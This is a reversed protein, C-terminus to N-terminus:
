ILIILKIFFPSVALEESVDLWNNLLAKCNNLFYPLLLIKSNEARTNIKTKKKPCIAEFSSKEEITVIFSIIPTNAKNIM